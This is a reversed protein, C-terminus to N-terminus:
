IQGQLKFDLQSMFDFCFVCVFFCFFHALPFSHRNYVPLLMLSRCVVSHFCLCHRRNSRVAEWFVLAGMRPLLYGGKVNLCPLILISVSVSIAQTCAKQERYHMQLPIQSPMELADRSLLRCLYYYQQLHSGTECLSVCSRPLFGLPPQQGPWVSPNM